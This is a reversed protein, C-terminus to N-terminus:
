LIRGFLRDLRYLSMEIIIPRGHPCCYPMDCALLDSILKMMEEKQISKGTKIAAKCAISAALYDRKDTNRIKQEAAYQDIVEKISVSSFVYADDLPIAKVELKNEKLEFYYGLENLEEKIEKLVIIESHDLTIQYPFLLDQSNSLDKSFSRLVKEYLVREHAGHQDFLLIGSPVELILYKNHIQLYNLYLDGEMIEKLIEYHSITDQNIFFEQRPADKPVPVADPKFINVDFNMPKPPAPPVFVNANSVGSNSNSSNGDNNYAGLYDTNFSRSSSPFTNSYDRGFNPSSINGSSMSAGGMGLRAFRDSSTSPMDQKDIIEGTVKNVLLTERELEENEVVVRKFPTIAEISDLSADPIVSNEALARVVARNVINHILREDEFKVEHKQPHVNVDYEHPDLEINILYFPNKSKELLHEYASFVAFNISKSQISRSNLFLYQNSRTQKAISPLGIYGNLKIGNEEHNLPIIAKATSEGIVDQIRKKLPGPQADFILTNDDYFVFRIDPKSLAFRLMTESIYRFETLNTKLFKKRAPLNYFLNRVFIQTGIDIAFPEIIPDKMPEATLRWGHEEGQPLTRIEINAVSAISALAEGRFGFTRIAELDESTFVKSTAHRRISLALDERSMGQGNDIIHILSKGADKVIVMITDAGADFSNEVLEKVVSEPRQVVEGAAIQNAIFEPLIQISKKSM